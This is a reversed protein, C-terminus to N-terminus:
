FFQQHVDIATVVRLGGGPMSLFEIACAVARRNAQAGETTRGNSIAMVVWRIVDRRKAGSNQVCNRDAKLSLKRFFVSTSSIRNLSAESSAAASTVSAPAIKM